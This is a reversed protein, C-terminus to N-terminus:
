RTSPSRQDSRRQAHLREYLPQWLAQGVANVARSRVLIEEYAALAEVFSDETERPRLRSGSPCSRCFLTINAVAHYALVIVGLPRMRRSVPSYYLNPDSGDDLPGLRNLVYM